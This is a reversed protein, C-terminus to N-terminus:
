IRDLCDAWRGIEDIEADTPYKAGLGKVTTLSVPFKVKRLADVSKKVPALAKDDEGCVFHFQQRFDPEHDAVPGQFPGGALVAGRIIERHRTTLLCAMPVGSGQSHVFIRQPDITYKERIHAVLGEVFRAEGPTWRGVQDSKPGM